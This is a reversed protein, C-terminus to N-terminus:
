SEYKQSDEVHHLIELTCSKFGVDAVDLIEWLSQWDVPTSEIVGQGDESLLPFGVVKLVEAQVSNLYTIRSGEHLTWLARVYTPSGLFAKM